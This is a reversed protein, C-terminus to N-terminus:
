VNRELIKIITKSDLSFNIFHIKHIINIMKDLKNEDFPHGILLDSLMENYLNLLTEEM